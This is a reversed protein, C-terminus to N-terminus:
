GILFDTAGSNRRMRFYDVHVLVGTTSM